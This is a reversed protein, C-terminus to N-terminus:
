DLVSAQPFHQSKNRFYEVVPNAFPQFIKVQVM